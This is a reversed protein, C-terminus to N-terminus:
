RARAPSGMNVFLVLLSSGAVVEPTAMPVFILINAVGSGRFQHRVLGFAALTGLITAAVTALVAIKLSLLLRTACARSARVSAALRGPLVADLHLQVSGAPQNFSFVIVVVIPVFMYILALHGFFTM